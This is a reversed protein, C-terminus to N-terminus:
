LKGLIGQAFDPAFHELVQPNSSIFSTVESVVSGGNGASGALGLLQQALDGQGNQQLSQAATQLHDSLQGSDIQSLHDSAAQALAQPDFAM